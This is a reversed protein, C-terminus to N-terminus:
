LIEIAAFTLLKFHCSFFWQLTFVSQVNCRKLWVADLNLQVPPLFVKKCAPLKKACVILVCLTHCCINTVKTGLKCGGILVSKLLKLFNPNRNILCTSVTWWWNVSHNSQKGWAMSKQTRQANWLVAPCLVSPCSNLDRSWILLTYSRFRVNAGDWIIFVFRAKALLPFFIPM